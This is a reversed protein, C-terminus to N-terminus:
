YKIISNKKLLDAFEECVTKHMKWHTKQCDKSCYRTYNCRSCTAKSPKKHCYHCLKYEDTNTLESTKLTIWLSTIDEAENYGRFRMFTPKKVAASNLYEQIIKHFQTCYGCDMKTNFVENIELEELDTEMWQKFVKQALEEATM